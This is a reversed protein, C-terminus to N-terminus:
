APNAVLFFATAAALMLLLLGVVLAVVLFRRNETLDTRVAGRLFVEPPVIEGSADQITLKNNQLFSSINDRTTKQGLSIGVGIGMALGAAIGVAFSM